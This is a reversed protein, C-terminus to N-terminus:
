GKGRDIEALAAQSAEAAVQVLHDVRLIVFDGRQVTSHFAVVPTKGEREAAVATKHWLTILSHRQARAKCEIYLRPHLSDSCSEVDRGSSGSLRNRVSGFVTAIRREFAKWTGKHM